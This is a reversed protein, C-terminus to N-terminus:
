ALEQKMAEDGQEVLSAVMEEDRGSRSQGGRATVTLPPRLGDRLSKGKVTALM